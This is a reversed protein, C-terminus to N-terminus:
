YFNILRFTPIAARGFIMFAKNEKAQSFGNKGTSKFMCEGPAKMSLEPNAEDRLRSVGAGARRVSGFGEWRFSLIKSRRVSWVRGRSGVFGQGQVSQGGTLSIVTFYPEM